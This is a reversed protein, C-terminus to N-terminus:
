KTSSSTRRDEILSYEVFLPPKLLNLTEIFFLVFFHLNVLSRNSKKRLECCWLDLTKLFTEKENVYYFKLALYRGPPVAGSPSTLGVRIVPHKRKRQYWLYVQLKMKEKVFEYLRPLLFRCRKM